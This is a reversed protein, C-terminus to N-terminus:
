LLEPFPRAEVDDDEIVLDTAEAALKDKRVLACELSELSPDFAFRRLTARVQPTSDDVGHASGLISIMGSVGDNDETVSLRELARAPDRGEDAGEIFFRADAEASDLESALAVSRKLLEASM